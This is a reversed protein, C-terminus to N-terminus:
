HAHMACPESQAACAACKVLAADAAPEAASAASLALEAARRARRPDPRASQDRVSRAAEMRAPVQAARRAASMARAPDALREAASMGDDYAPATVIILAAEARAISLAASAARARIDPDSMMRRWRRRASKSVKVMDAASQALYSLDSATPVHQAVSVRVTRDGQWGDRSLADRKRLTGRPTVVASPAKRGTPAAPHSAGREHREAAREHDVKLWGSVDARISGRPAHFRQAEALASRVETGCHACTVLALGHPCPAMLADVRASLAASLAASRTQAEATVQAARQAEAASQAASARLRQALAANRVTQGAYRPTVDHRAAISAARQAEAARQAARNSEAASQAASLAASRRQAASLPAPTPSPLAPM